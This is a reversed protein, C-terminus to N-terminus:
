VNIKRKFKEVVFEETMEMSEFTAGAIHPTIVIPYGKKSLCVLGNENIKRDLEDKLVDTAVGQLKCDKIMECIINEDWVSGRSTNILIATRKVYSLLNEDIFNENQANQPIHISIVDGWNFLAEPTDFKTYPVDIENIDYYGVEMEFCTAIKAIQKGVRGMGLIAIKKYKLNNGKFFDREWNGQKVDEFSFPIKKVLALLLGWTHEATSPILELFSTEGKLCIIQGRKKIFYDIDIHDTGTTASIIYKLQPLQELVNQDLKFKLRVFLVEAEKCSQILDSLCEFNQLQVDGVESLERYARKSFGGSETVIIKMKGNMICLM